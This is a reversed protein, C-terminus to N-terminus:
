QSCGASSGRLELRQEALATCFEVLERAPELIDTHPYEKWCIPLDANDVMANSLHTHPDLPGGVM